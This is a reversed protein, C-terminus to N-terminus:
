IEAASARIQLELLGKKMNWDKKRRKLENRKFRKFQLRDIFYYIPAWTELQHYRIVNRMRSVNEPKLIGTGFFKIKSNPHKVGDVSGSEIISKCISLYCGECVTVEKKWFGPEEKLQRYERLKM